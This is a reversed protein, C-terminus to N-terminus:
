KLKCKYKYKYKFKYKYNVKIKRSFFTLDLLFHDTCQPHPGSKLVIELQISVLWHLEVNPPQSLSQMYELKGAYM